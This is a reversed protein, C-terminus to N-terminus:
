NLDEDDDDHYAVLSQVDHLHVLAADTITSQNCYSMNLTHIGVLHVFAGDTITSQKCGSMNLTHIGRLHVFAGDTITPQNCGSMDLTHIGRLHVFAGDTITSQNCYSMSLTHIGQLYQFDDDCLDERKSINACRANSFSRRWLSLPGLIRTEKDMWQYTRVADLMEHCTSRLPSAELATLFQLIDYGCSSMISRVGGTLQVPQTSNMTGMAIYSSSSM